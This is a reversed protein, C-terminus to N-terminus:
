NKVRWMYALAIVSVALSYVAFILTAAGPRFTALALAALGVGALAAVWTEFFVAYLGLVVVLHLIDFTMVESVPDGLRAAILRHVLLVGSAGVFLYAFRRGALNRTIRRWLAAVAAASGVFVILAIRVLDGATAVALRLGSAFVYGTIAVAMATLVAALIRRERWIAHPDLDPHRPLRSEIADLLTGMTPFRDAPDRALGRTVIPAIWAPVAAGPLAIGARPPPRVALADILRSGQSPERVRGRRVGSPLGLETWADEAFPSQGYLARYLAVCFSFQDSAPTAREGRWQEPSMFSPTGAIASATAGGDAAAGLDAIGFDVVRARGDRGVLVNDPKFDRHVLGARHVAELGRGAQVFVGLIEAVPRRRGGGGDGDGDGDGGLFASLTPGDVLEMALFVQGDHDGVEYIPVVNPHSLKALAQAEELRRHGDRAAAAGRHLIKIAVRRDLAEDYGLYVRGMGGEGLARVLAFRGVRAAAPLATEPPAPPGGRLDRAAGALLEPAPSLFGPRAARDSDLLRQVRARLAPELRCTEALRRSAEDPPLDVLADFLAAMREGDSPDSV